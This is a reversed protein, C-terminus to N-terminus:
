PLYVTDAALDIPVGLGPLFIPQGRQYAELLAARRLRSDDDCLAVKLM